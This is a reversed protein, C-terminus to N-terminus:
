FNDGEADLGTPDDPYKHLTAPGVERRSTSTYGTTTAPDVSKFQDRLTDIFPWHKEDLSGTLRPEVTFYDKGDQSRAPKLGLTIEGHWLPIGVRLYSVKLAKFAKFSTAPISLLSPLVEGQRYLLLRMTEKIRKGRGGKPDSGWDAYPNTGGEATSLWDYYDQGDKVEVRMSELVDADIDGLTDGKKYARIM